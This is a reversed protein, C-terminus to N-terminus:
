FQQVSGWSRMLIKGDVTMDCWSKRIDEVLWKYGSEGVFRSGEPMAYTCSCEDWDGCCVKSMIDLGVFPSSSPARPNSSHELMIEVFFSQVKSINGYGLDEDMGCPLFRLRGRGLCTPQRQPTCSMM